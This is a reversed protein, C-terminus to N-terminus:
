YDKADDHRSRKPDEFVTDGDSTTYNIMTV